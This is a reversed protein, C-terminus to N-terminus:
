TGKDSVTEVFKELTHINGTCASPLLRFQVLSFNIVPGCTVCIIKEEIM